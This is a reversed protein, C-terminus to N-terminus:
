KYREFASTRSWVRFARAAAEAARELDSEEAVALKGIEASTAPNLIPMTNGGKGPGWAGDILLSVDDYMPSSGSSATRLAFKAPAGGSPLPWQDTTRPSHHTTLPGLEAPTLSRCRGTGRVRRAMRTSREGSNAPLPLPPTPRLLALTNRRRSLPPN